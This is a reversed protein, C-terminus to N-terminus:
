RRNHSQNAKEVKGLAEALMIKVCHHMWKSELLRTDVSLTLGEDDTAIRSSLIIKKPSANENQIDSLSFCPQSGSIFHMSVLREDFSFKM